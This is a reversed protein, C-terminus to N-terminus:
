AHPADVTEAAEAVVDDHDTEHGYRYKGLVLLPLTSVFLIIAASTLTFQWDRGDLLGLDWEILKLGEGTASDIPQDITNDEIFDGLHSDEDDGIPTEM